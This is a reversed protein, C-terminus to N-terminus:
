QCLVESTLLNQIVFPFTKQSGVYDSSFASREIIIKSRGHCPKYFSAMLVHLNVTLNGMVSVEHFLGGVVKAILEAAVRDAQGWNPLTSDVM